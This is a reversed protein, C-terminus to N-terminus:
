KLLRRARVDRAIKRSQETAAITLYLSFDGETNAADVSCESMAFRVITDVIHVPLELPELTILMEAWLQRLPACLPNPFDNGLHSSMYFNKSSFICTRVFQGVKWSTTNDLDYEGVNISRQSIGTLVRMEEVGFDCYEHITRRSGPLRLMRTIDDCCLNPLAEDEPISNICVAWETAVACSLLKPSTVLKDYCPETIWKKENRAYERLFPLNKKNAKLLFDDARRMSKGFYQVLDAANAKFVIDVFCLVVLNGSQSILLSKMFEHEKETFPEDIRGNRWCLTIWQFIDREITNGCDDHLYELFTSYRGAKLWSIQTGIDRYTM